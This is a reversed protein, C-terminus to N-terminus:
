EDGGFKHSGEHGDDRHKAMRLLIGQLEKMFKSEFVLFKAYEKTDLVSKFAKLKDIYVENLKVQNDMLNDTMKAIDDKSADKKLAKSLEDAAKDVAMRQEDVKKEYVTYKALFKEAEDENLNLIEMLKMKKMMSIREKAKNAPQSQAFGYSIVLLLLVISTKKLVSILM